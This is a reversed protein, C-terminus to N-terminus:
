DNTTQGLAARLAPYPEAGNLLETLRIFNLTTLDKGDCSQWIKERVFDLPLPSAEGSTQGAARGVEIANAFWTIMWGEDVTIGKEANIRTFERAWKAADTTQLLENQDRM